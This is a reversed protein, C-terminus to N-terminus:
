QDVEITTARRQQFDNGLGVDARGFLSALPRLRQSVRDPPDAGGVGVHVLARQPDVGVHRDPRAALLLEAPNFADPNGALDTDLAIEANKCRALSGHADVRRAEVHFSMKLAPETM